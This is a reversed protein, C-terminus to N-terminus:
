KVCVLEDTHFFYIYAEKVPLEYIRELAGAYVGVQRRYQAIRESRNKDTIRDTKFDLVTIGHEEILACDIVGQLLITDNEVGEYYDSANELISFKFERLVNQGNMIRTGLESCFFRAIQTVDVIRAQEDTILRRDVMRSIDCSIATEDTCKSFDLYQLVSHLATGYESGGSVKGAIVPSRFRPVDTRATGTFEAAEQDKVRGKIQTATIKSPIQIAAQEPYSYSLGTRMKEIVADSMCICNDSVEM